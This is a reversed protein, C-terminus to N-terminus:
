TLTWTSQYKISNTERRIKHRARDVELCTQLFWNYSLIALSKRRGRCGSVHTLSKFRASHSRAQLERIRAFHQKQKSTTAIKHVSRRRAIGGPREFDCLDRRDMSVLVFSLNRSILLFSLRFPFSFFSPENFVVYESPGRQSRPIRFERTVLRGRCISERALPIFIIIRGVLIVTVRIASPRACREVCPRAKHPM